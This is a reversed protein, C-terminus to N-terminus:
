GTARAGRRVGRGDDNEAASRPHRFLGASGWERSYEDRRWLMAVLMCPIMLGHQASVAVEGGLAGVSVLGAIALAPLVTAGAMEGISRRSMGGRRMWALMPATMGLAMVLAVLAPANAVAEPQNTGAVRLGAELLGGLLAMGLLMAAVMEAFHRLFLRLRNRAGPPRAGTRSGKLRQTVM